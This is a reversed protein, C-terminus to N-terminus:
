MQILLLLLLKQKYWNVLLCFSINLKIKWCFIKLLKIYMIFKKNLFFYNVTNQQFKYVTLFKPGINWLFISCTWRCSYFPLINIWRKTSQIVGLKTIPQVINPFHLNFWSKAILLVITLHSTSGDKPIFQIMFQNKRLGYKLYPEVM